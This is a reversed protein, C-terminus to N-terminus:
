STEVPPSARAAILTLLSPHLAKRFRILQNIKMSTHRRPQPPPNIGKKKKLPFSIQSQGYGTHTRDNNKKREPKSRCMQRTDAVPVRSCIPERDVVAASSVPARRSKKKSSQKISRNIGADIVGCWVVMRRVGRAKRCGSVGAYVITSACSRKSRELLSEVSSVRGFREPSCSFGM